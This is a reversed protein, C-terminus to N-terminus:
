LMSLALVTRSDGGRAPEREWIGVIIDHGAFDARLLDVVEHAERM